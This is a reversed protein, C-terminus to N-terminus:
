MEGEMLGTLIEILDIKTPDITDGGYNEWAERVGRNDDVLIGHRFNSVTHKPTGYKVVHVSDFCDLIGMNELWEMKAKKVLRNHEASNHTKCSWSIVELRFGMMHLTTLINALEEMDWMPEAALYPSIEGANLAECWGNVSYLDAITGDMDFCIVKEM